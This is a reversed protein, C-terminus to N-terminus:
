KTNGLILWLFLIFMKVVFLHFPVGQQLNVWSLKFPNAFQIYSQLLLVLILWCIKDQLLIFASLVVFFGLRFVLNIFM